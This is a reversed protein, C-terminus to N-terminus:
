GNLAAVVVGADPLDGVYRFCEACMYLYDGVLVAYDESFLM